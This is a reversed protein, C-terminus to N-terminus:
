KVEPILQIMGPTVNDGVIGNVTAILNWNDPTGYESTSISRLTDGEGVTVVDKVAGTLYQLGQTGLTLSESLLDKVAGDLAIAASVAGIEADPTDQSDACAPTRTFPMFELPSTAVSVWMRAAVGYSAAVTLGEAQLDTITQKVQGALSAIQQAMDAPASAFGEAKQALAGIQNTLAGIGMITSQVYDQMYGDAVNLAANAVDFPQEAQRVWNSNYTSQANTLAAMAKDYWNATNPGAVTVQPTTYVESDSTWEFRMTWHIIEANKLETNFATLLGRLSVAGTDFGYTVLVEQGQRLIDLMIDRAQWATNVAAFLAAMNAGSGGSALVFMGANWMYRTDWTGKWEAAKPDFGLVQLTKEPTGANRTISHAQEYGEPIADFPLCRGMLTVKRQLGTLETITAFGSNGPTFAQPPAMTTMGPTVSYATTPM